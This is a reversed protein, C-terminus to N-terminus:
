RPAALTQAVLDPRRMQTKFKEAPFLEDDVRWRIFKEAGPSGDYFGDPTYALWYTASPQSLLAFVKWTIPLRGSMVNYLKIDGNVDNIFLLLGNSSLRMNWFSKDINEIVQKIRGSKVDWIRASPFDTTKNSVAGVLTSGDASFVITYPINKSETELVRLIAGTRADRVQLQLPTYESYLTTILIQNDRSFGTASVAGEDNRRWIM